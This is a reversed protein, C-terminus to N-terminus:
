CKEVYNYEKRIERIIYTGDLNSLMKFWDSKFFDECNNIILQDSKHNTYLANRYDKIACMIIANTIGETYKTPGETGEIHKAFKDKKM